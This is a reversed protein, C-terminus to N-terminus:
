AALVTRINPFVDPGGLLTGLLHQQLLKATALGSWVAQKPLRTVATCTVGSDARMNTVAGGFVVSAVLDTATGEPAGASVLAAILAAATTRTGLVTSAAAAAADGGAPTPPPVFTALQAELNAIAADHHEVFLNLLAAVFPNSLSAATTSGDDDPAAVSM